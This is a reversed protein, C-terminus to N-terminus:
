VGMMQEKVGFDDLLAEFHDECRLRAALVHGFTRRIPCVGKQEIRGVIHARLDERPVRHLNPHVPLAIHTVAGRGSGRNFVGVEGGLLHSLERAFGLGVGTGGPRASFGDELLHVGLIADTLHPDEPLTASQDALLSDIARPVGSERILAGIRDRLVSRSLEGDPEVKLPALMTMVHSRPLGEATGHRCLHTDIRRLINEKVAAHRIGVGDDCIESEWIGHDVSTTIEVCIPDGDAHDFANKVGAYLMTAAAAADTGEFGNRGCVTLFTKGLATEVLIQRRGIRVIYEPAGHKKECYMATRIMPVFLGIEDCPADMHHPTGSHAAKNAAIITRTFDPVFQLLRGLEARHVGAKDPLGDELDCLFRGCKSTVARIVRRSDHDVRALFQKAHPDRTEELAILALFIQAIYDGVWAVIGQIDKDPCNEIVAADPLCQAADTLWALTKEISDHRLQMQRNRIFQDASISSSLERSTLVERSM